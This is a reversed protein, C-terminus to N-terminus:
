NARQSKPTQTPYTSDNILFDDKSILNSLVLIKYLFPLNSIRTCISHDEKENALPIYGEFLFLTSPLAFPKM